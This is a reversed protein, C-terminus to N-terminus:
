QAANMADELGNAERPFPFEIRHPSPSKGSALAFMTLDLASRLNHVADGIILAIESPIPKEAKSAYSLKGAKPQIRVMLKFPKQAMIASTARELDNVHHKAWEIKLHGPHALEDPIPM